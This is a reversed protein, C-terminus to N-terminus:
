ALKLQVGGAQPKFSKDIERYISIKGFEGDYGPAIKVEGRRVRLIAEKIKPQCFAELEPGTLDLLIGFENGGQAVMHLYEERVKKTNVGCDLADAILEELPIISKQGVQGPPPQYDWPRDALAEVRHMEVQRFSGETTPGGAQYLANFLGGVSSVQYSGPRLVDGTVTIQNARLQGVSVQFRTSANPSRAIGSYV